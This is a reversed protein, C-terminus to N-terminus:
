ATLSHMQPSCHCLWVGWGGPLVRGSRSRRRFRELPIHEWHRLCEGGNSRVEEKSPSAAREKARSNNVLSAQLSFDETM